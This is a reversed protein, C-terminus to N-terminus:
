EAVGVWKEDDASGIGLDFGKLISSFSTTEWPFSTEIGCYAVTKANRDVERKLSLDQVAPGGGGM